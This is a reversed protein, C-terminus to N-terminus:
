SIHRQCTSITHGRLQERQRRLLEDIDEVHSERGSSVALGRCERKKKKGFLTSIVRLLTEIMTNIMYWLGYTRHDAVDITIIM